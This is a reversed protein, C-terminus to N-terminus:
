KFHLTETLGKKASFCEKHLLQFSITNGDL